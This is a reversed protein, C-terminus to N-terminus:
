LDKFQNISQYCTMSQPMKSFVVCTNKINDNLLRYYVILQSSVKSRSAAGPDNIYLHAEISADSDSYVIKHPQQTQHINRSFPNFFPEFTFLLGTFILAQKAFISSMAIFIAEM